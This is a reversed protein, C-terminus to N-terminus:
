FEVEIKSRRSLQERGKREYEASVNTGMFTLNCDVSLKARLMAQGLESYSVIHKFSKMKNKSFCNEFFVRLDNDSELWHSTNYLKKRNYGRVWRGVGPWDAKGGEFEIEIHDSSQVQDIKERGSEASVKGSILLKNSKMAVSGSSRSDAEYLHGYDNEILVRKAGSERAIRILEQDKQLYFDSSLITDLSVIVDQSGPHKIYIGDNSLSGPITRPFEKYASDKTIYKFGYIPAKNDTDGVIRILPEPAMDELLCSVRFDFAREDDTIKYNQKLMERVADKSEKKEDETLELCNYLELLERFTPPEVVYNEVERVAHDPLKVLRSLEEVKKELHKEQEPHRHGDAHMAMSVLAVRFLAQSERDKESRGVMMNSLSSSFTSSGSKFSSKTSASASKAKVIKTGAYAAGAAGLIYAAPILPLPM